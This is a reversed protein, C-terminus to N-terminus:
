REGGIIEGDETIREVNSDSAFQLGSQKPHTRSLDGDTTLFFLDEAAELEPLKATVAASIAVSDVPLRKGQPAVTVKITLTGKKATAAVARILASLQESAQENPDGGSIEAFQVSFSKRSM